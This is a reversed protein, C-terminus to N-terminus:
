LYTAEPVPIDSEHLWESYLGRLSGDNRMEELVGNVFRVLDERGKTIAIAYPETEAVDDPLAVIRTLDAKPNEQSQFSRLITDDSTIADVMGEQLAVICDSRAEVPYLIARPAVNAINVISTSGRTACVRRGALDHITQIPSKKNVLVAQKANFYTTSFDVDNWRGCTATLLSAVMDVKGAKVAAIRQATTLTMFHVRDDGGDPFIARAIRRLLDVELGTLDGTRPDRFGWGRTGQDVGVVLYGTERIKDFSPMPADPDPAYSMTPNCPPAVTTSPVTTASSPAVSPLPALSEDLAEDSPTSCGSAAALLLVAFTLWVFRRM